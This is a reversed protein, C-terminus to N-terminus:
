RLVRSWTRNTARPLFLSRTASRDRSDRRAWRTRRKITTKKTAELRRPGTVFSPSLRDRDVRRPLGGTIILMDVTAAM